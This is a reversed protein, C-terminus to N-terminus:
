TPPMRGWSMCRGSNGWSRRNHVGLRDNGTMVKGSGGPVECRCTLLGGAASDVIFYVSAQTVCRIMKVALGVVFRMEVLDEYGVPVDGIM